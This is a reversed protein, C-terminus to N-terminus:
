SVLRTHKVSDLSFQQVIFLGDVSKGVWFESCSKGKVEEMSTFLLNILGHDTCIHELSCVNSVKLGLVALSQRVLVM